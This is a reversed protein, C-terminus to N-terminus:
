QSEAFEASSGTAGSHGMGAASDENMDHSTSHLDEVSVAASGQADAPEASPAERQSGNNSGSKAPPEVKSQLKGVSLQIASQLRRDWAKNSLRIGECCNPVVSKVDLITLFAGAAEFAALEKMLNVQLNHESFIIVEGRQLRQQFEPTAQPLMGKKSTKMPYTIAISGGSTYVGGGYLNLSNLNSCLPRSSLQLPLVASLDCSDIFQCDKIIKFIYNIGRWEFAYPRTLRVRWEQIGEVIKLTVQQLAYLLQLVKTQVELTSLKGQSYDYAMVTIVHVIQEREFILKLLRLTQQKHQQLTDVIVLLKQLNPDSRQVIFYKRYLKVDLFPMHLERVLTDFKQEVTRYQQRLVKDRQGPDYNALEDERFAANYQQVAAEFTAM